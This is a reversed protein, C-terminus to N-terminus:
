KVPIGQFPNMQVNLIGTIPHFEFPTCHVRPLGIKLFAPVLMPKTQTKRETIILGGQHLTWNWNRQKTNTEPSQVCWMWMETTFHGFGVVAFRGAFASMLSPRLQGFHFLVIFYVQLDPNTLLPCGALSVQWASPLHFGVSLETYLVNLHM